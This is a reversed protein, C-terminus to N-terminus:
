VLGRQESYCEWWARMQRLVPELSRGLETLSYEVKPPMQSYKQRHILGMQELDRLQMSLMQRSAGPILRQLEGFRKTGSLLQYGIQMKWKGGVSM